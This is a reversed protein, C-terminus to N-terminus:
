FTVEPISLAFTFTANLLLKGFHSLGV